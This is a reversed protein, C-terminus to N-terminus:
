FDIISLNYKTDKQKWEKWAMNISARVAEGVNASDGTLPLSVGIKVVPKTDAAQKKEDKCAMLALVMCLSLLWKKM